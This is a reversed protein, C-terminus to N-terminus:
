QSSVGSWRHIDEEEEEEEEEEETQKLMRWSNLDHEDELQVSTRLSGGARCRM